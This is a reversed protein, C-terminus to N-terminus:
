LYEKLRCSPMIALIRGSERIPAEILGSEELRAYFRSMSTRIAGEKKDNKYSEFFFEEVQKHECKDVKRFIEVVKKAIAQLSRSEFHRDIWGDIITDVSGLGAQKVRDVGIPMIHKYERLCRAVNKKFSRPLGKASIAIERLAEETFPAVSEWKLRYIQSLEEPSYLSAEVQHWKDMKHSDYVDPLVLILAGCDGWVIREKEVEDLKNWFLRKDLAIKDSFDYIIFHPEPYHRGACITEPCKWERLVGGRTWASKHPRNLIAWSRDAAEQYGAYGESLKKKSERYEKEVRTWYNDQSYRMFNESYYIGSYIDALFIYNRKGEEYPASASYEWYIEKALDSKGWGKQAVLMVKRGRLLFDFIEDFCTPRLYSKNKSLTDTAEVEEAWALRTAFTDEMRLFLKASISDM